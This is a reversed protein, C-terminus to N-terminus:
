NTEDRLERVSGRRMLILATDEVANSLPSEGILFETTKSYLHGYQIHCIFSEGDESLRIFVEKQFPNM